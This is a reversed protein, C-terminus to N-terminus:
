NVTGIGVERIKEVRDLRIKRAASVNIDRLLTTTPLPM